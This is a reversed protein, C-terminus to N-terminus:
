SRTERMTRLPLQAIITASLEAKRSPDILVNTDTTSLVSPVYVGLPRTALAFGAIANLFERAITRSDDAAPRSDWNTPLVIGLDTLTVIKRAGIDIRGVLVTEVTEWGPRVAVELISLAESSAAYLIETMSDNFRWGKRSISTASDLPDFPAAITRLLTGPRSGRVARSRYLYV